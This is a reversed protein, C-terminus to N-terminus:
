SLPSSDPPLWDRFNLPSSQDDDPQPDGEFLGDGDDGDDGPEHRSTSERRTTGQSPSPPSSPSPGGGDLRKVRVQRRRQGGSRGGSERDDCEVDLSHVRRLNPALRRLRSTLTNPRKPWERPLPISAHRELAALLESATGLWSEKGEMFAVLAAPLPSSDLAQEHAGSQNESYAALFTGREGAGRECAVAFAAFDAMRPLRPLRLGPLIRLGASVRDLVAGLLRAHAEDFEVWFESEPRRKEEPIPPHRILLSRELLDGRTVFDDIGNVIAPRKIDFIVEEDNTYLERTSFGGGTALRCLADSLWNPLWSLNDYVVVLSNRGQIMLDHVGKPESRTDAMSPDILRKLVRATTTKASGQEGLLVMVPFPGDPRFCNALWGLVLSFAGDNPVNLFARLDAIEGGPSPTPLPRIGAPRRFRVPPDNCVRWGTSDIEIVTSDPDALDLYVKGGHGAIRVHAKREPGDHIATAEIASLATNLAEVNPVKGGSQKRYEKVLHLRFARSRVGHSHRGITAFANHAPDHWLEYSHGIAALLEYAPATSQKVGEPQEASARNTRSRKAKETIPDRRAM